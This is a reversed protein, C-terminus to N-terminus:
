AAADAVGKSYAAALTAVDIIGSQPVGLAAQMSKVAAITADNYKGDIPGTYFGLQTLSKQLQMTSAALASTGTTIAASIATATDEDLEGTAPLGVSTQFAAVAAKVDDDYIGDIPGTYFGLLKLDTQLGSTLVAGAVATEHAEILADRALDVDTSAAIQLQGGSVTALSFRAATPDGHDDFRIAGSPGDYDIDEGAVLKDRCDAFTSCTTGKQTVDVMGTAIADSDTGNAALSALTLSIACDYAQAAYVVPAKADATILRSFLDKSGTTGVVNLGNTKSPDDPTVQEALRPDLVGDLGVVTSPQMGAAMLDGILPVGEGISVIITLLPKSAVVTQALDDFLVVDSGYTSPVADYGLAVLGDTLSLGVEAGYADERSIVAIRGGAPVKTAIQQNLQQTFYPDPVATRFFRRATEGETLAPVTASASCAVINSAALQPMLLAADDSSTPGVVVNAGAAILEDLGDTTSKGTDPTNVVVKIDGNPLGGAENMDAVALEVARQQATGADTMLGPKPLLLGITLATAKPASTAPTTVAVTTSPAATTSSSNNDDSCAAAVVVLSSGIIALRTLLTGSGRSGREPM